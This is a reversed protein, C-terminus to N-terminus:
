FYETFKERDEPSNFMGDQSCDEDIAYDQKDLFM